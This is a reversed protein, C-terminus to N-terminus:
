DLLLLLLLVVAVMVELVGGAAVLRGLLLLLRRLQKPAAARRGARRALHGGGGGRQGVRQGRGGERRALRGGKGREIGRTGQGCHGGAVRLVLLVQALRVLLLQLTVVLGVVVVCVCVRGAAGGTGIVTLKLLLRQVLLVLGVRVHVCLVRVVYLKGKSKWVIKAM